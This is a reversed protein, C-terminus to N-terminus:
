LVVGYYKVPSLNGNLVEFNGVCVGVQQKGIFLIIVLRNKVYPKTIIKKKSCM